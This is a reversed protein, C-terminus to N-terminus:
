PRILRPLSGKSEIFQLFNKVLQIVMLMELLVRGRSTRIVAVVVVTYDETRNHTNQSLSSDCKNLKKV